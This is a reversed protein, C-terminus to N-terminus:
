TKKVNPIFYRARLPSPATQRAGQQHHVHLGRCGGPRHDRRRAAQRRQRRGMQNQADDPASATGSSPNRAAGLHNQGSPKLELGGAGPRDASVHRGTRWVRRRHSPLHRTSKRRAHGPRPFAERDAHAVPRWLQRHHAEEDVYALGPRRNPTPMSRILRTISAKSLVDAKAFRVGRRRQPDKDWVCINSDDIEPTSARRMPEDGRSRRLRCASGRIGCPDTVRRSQSPAETRRGVIVSGPRGRLPRIGAVGRERTRPLPHPSAWVAGAPREM